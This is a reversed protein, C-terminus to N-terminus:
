KDKENEKKREIDEQIVVVLWAILWLIGGVVIIALPVGVLIILIIEVWWTM